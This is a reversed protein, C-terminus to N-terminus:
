EHLVLSRKGNSQVLIDGVRDTRLVHGSLETLRAVVESHPHGYSNTGVSIVSLQPSVRELFQEGSSTRSGQHPVKLIDASVTKSQELLRQEIATSIDGTLLTETEGFVARLVVSTDNAEDPKTYEISELPYLVSLTTSGATITMGQRATHVAAGTEREVRKRLQEYTHSDYNVNTWLVHKVRYRRLVEVLGAAHDSHPHTLVVMDITRDWFPMAGALKSIVTNDPGGDVLIHHYQPTEIFTSDGQGVDFFRVEFLDPQAAEFVATWALVNVIVLGGIVAQVRKSRMM